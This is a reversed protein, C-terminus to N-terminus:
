QFPVESLFTHTGNVWRWASFVDVICHTPHFASVSFMTILVKYHLLQQLVAASYMSKRHKHKSTPIKFHRPLENRQQCAYYAKELWYPIDLFLIIVLSHLDNRPVQRALMDFGPYVFNFYKLYLHRRNATLIEILQGTTFQFILMYMGGIFM